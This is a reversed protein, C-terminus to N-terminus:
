EGHKIRVVAAYLEILADISSATNEVTAVINGAKYHLNKYEGIISDARMASICDAPAVGEYIIQLLGDDYELKFQEDDLTMVNCPIGGVNESKIQRSICDSFVRKLKYLKGLGSLRKFAEKEDDNDTKDEDDEDQEQMLTELMREYAEDDFDDDEEDDDDEVCELDDNKDSRFSERMKRRYEDLTWINDHDDAKQIRELKEARVNYTIGSAFFLGGDEVLESFLAKAQNYSLEFQKQISPLTIKKRKKIYEIIKEKEM